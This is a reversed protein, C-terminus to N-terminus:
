FREMGIQNRIEDVITRIANVVLEPEENHINHGSKETTIHTSRPFQAALRQHARMSSQIVEPSLGWQQEQESLRTSTLVVVPVDPLGTINNSMGISHKIAEWESKPAGTSNAYYNDFGMFLKEYVEPELDAKWADFTAADKVDVFVMGAVDDPYLGAFTLIHIGGLSHGVLVYPPPIEARELLRHLENAVTDASRPEPGPESQGLGARDYSIAQTFEAVLPQVKAWARSTEGLGSDMIVAPQREGMMHILLKFGGIDVHQTSTVTDQQVAEMSNLMLLWVLVATFVARLSRTM